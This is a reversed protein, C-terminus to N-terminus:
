GVIFGDVGVLVGGEADVVSDFVEEGAHGEFVFGALQEVGLELLAGVSGEVESVHSCSAVARL